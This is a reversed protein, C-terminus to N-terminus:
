SIRRDDVSDTHAFDNAWLTRLEALLPEHGIRRELRQRMHRLREEVQAHVAQQVSVFRTVHVLMSCHEGGQGRLNRLACSLLFASIAQNLSPPLEDKGGHRPLHGNKHRTPMWHAFDTVHRVLPLGGSRGNESQSGFVRAPGVYDSPAALSIIFAEPFLDAGEERTRGQEHIFINAFPTATYGVHASHSFSHLISRVLRNIATPEHDEDPRGDEDVPIEKTDVSANDAEDDILLLPLRTM